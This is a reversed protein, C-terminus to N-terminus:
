KPKPELRGRIYSVDSSMKIVSERYVKIEDELNSFRKEYALDKLELARNLRVSEKDAEAKSKFTSFSWLVVAVAVSSISLGFGLTEISNFRWHIFRGGNVDM